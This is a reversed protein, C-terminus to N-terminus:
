LPVRWFETHRDTDSGPATTNQLAPQKEPMINLMYDSTTAKM